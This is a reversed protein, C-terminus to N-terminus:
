FSNIVLLLFASFHLQHLLCFSLFKLCEFVRLRCGHRTIAGHGSAAPAGATERLEEMNFAIKIRELAWPPVPSNSKGANRLTLFMVGKFPEFFYVKLEGITKFGGALTLGEASLFTAISIRLWESVFTVADQATKLPIMEQESRRALAVGADLRRLVEAIKLWGEQADQIEIPNGRELAAQMRAYARQEEEELRRLTHGAGTKGLNPLTEGNGVAESRGQPAGDRKASVRRKKNHGTGISRDIRRRERSRAINTRRLEKATLFAKLSQPDELRCGEAAWRQLTRWNRGVTKSFEALQARSYSM